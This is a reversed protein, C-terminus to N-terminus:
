VRAFANAVEVVVDVVMWFMWIGVAYDWASLLDRLVETCPWLSASFVSGPAVRGLAVGTRVRVDLRDLAGCVARSLSGHGQQLHVVAERRAARMRIFGKRMGKVVRHKLWLRAEIKCVRM